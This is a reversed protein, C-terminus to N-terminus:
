PTAIKNYYINLAYENTYVSVTFTIASFFLYYYPKVSIFTERPSRRLKM